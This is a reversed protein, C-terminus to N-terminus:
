CADTTLNVWIGEQKGLMGEVEEGDWRELNNSLGPELDRHTM